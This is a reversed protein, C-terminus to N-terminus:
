ERDCAGEPHILWCKGCPVGGVPEDACQDHRYGEAEDDWQILDGIRVPGECETCTGSFRAPFAAM